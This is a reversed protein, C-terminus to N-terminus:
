KKTALPCYSYIHLPRSTQEYLRLVLLIYINSFIQVRICNNNRVTSSKFKGESYNKTMLQEQIIGWM